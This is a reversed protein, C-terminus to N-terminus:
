TGCWAISSRLDQPPDGPPQPRACRAGLTGPGPARGRIGTREQQHRYQTCKADTGVVASNALGHLYYVRRGPYELRVGITDSGELPVTTNDGVHLDGITLRGRERWRRVLYAMTGPHIASLYESSVGPAQGPKLNEEHLVLLGRPYSPLPVVTAL